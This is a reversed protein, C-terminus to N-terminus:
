KFLLSNKISLYAEFRYQKPQPTKDPQEPTIESPESRTDSPESSTDSPAPPEPTTELQEPTLESPESSTDSPVPLESTTEPQEPNITSPEPTRDSLSEPITVKPEPTKDSTMHWKGTKQDQVYTYIVFFKQSFLRRIRSEKLASRLCITVPYSESNDANKKWAHCLKCEM